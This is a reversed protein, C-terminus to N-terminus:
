FPLDGCPIEEHSPYQSKTPETHQVPSQTQSQAGQSSQSGQGNGLLEVKDGFIETVYRKTGDQSDYSRTRIKGELYVRDGKKVYRETIEALNGWIVISHWETQDPVQTGDKKTYGKETTAISFTAVIGGNDLRKVEPDKGVYGLLAVRNVSM